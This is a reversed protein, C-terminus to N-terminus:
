EKPEEGEGTAAPPEAPKSVIVRAPRLIRDHLRYGKATETLVTPEAHETSPQQMIAEHLTPDFKKGAAEIREVRFDRLVKLFTDITLKVGDALADADNKHEAAAAILRELDDLVPLLAKAFGANAYRVYDSHEKEVRRQYNALEAKARLFKDRWQEIEAKLAELSPPPEEAARQGAAPAAQDAPPAASEPPPEAAPQEGSSGPSASGGGFQAIEEESPIAIRRKM